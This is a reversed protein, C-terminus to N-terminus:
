RYNQDSNIDYVGRYSGLISPDIPLDIPVENMRKVKGKSERAQERLLDDVMAGFPRAMQLALNYHLAEYYGPQFAYATDLTAFQALSTLAYIAVTAATSPVPYFTFTGDPMTPEYIHRLPWLMTLTKLSLLQYEDRTMAFVPLEFTSGVPIVGLGDVRMPRAGVFNGSPGITRSAQNATLAFTLRTQVPLLLRETNWADTMRNLIALGLTGMSPSADEGDGLVNLEILANTILTRATLALASTSSPSLAAALAALNPVVPYEEDAPDAGAGTAHLSIPGLTNADTANPAVSYWGSGLESVAGLPTAFGLGDNKAITVTPSLGTAGTVHDAALVMLFRLPQTTNALEIPYAM